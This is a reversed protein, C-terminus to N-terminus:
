GAARRKLWRMFVGLVPLKEYLEGAADWYDLHESIRGDPAFRLHSMGTITEEGSHGLGSIKFIFDWRIVVGDSGSWRGTVRFRPNVLREFMQLYIARVASTGRVDSFPDRFRADAAYFEPVRDCSAPTLSEFWAVIADLTVATGSM